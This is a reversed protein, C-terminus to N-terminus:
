FVTIYFFLILLYNTFHITNEGKVIVTIEILTPTSIPKDVNLSKRKAFIM